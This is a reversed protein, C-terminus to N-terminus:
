ELQDGRRANYYVSIPDDEFLTAMREAVTNGGLLVSYSLALVIVGTATIIIVGARDPRKQLIWVVGAYVAVTGVVILLSTRVQSLYIAMLGLTAWGVAVVRQWWKLKSVFFCLGFAGAV